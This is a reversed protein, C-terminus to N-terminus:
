MPITGVAVVGIAITGTIIMTLAAIPAVTGTAVPILALMATIVTTTVSIAMVVAPPGILTVTLIAIVTTAAVRVPGDGVGRLVGVSITPRALGLHGLAQFPGHEGLIIAQAQTSQALLVCLVDAQVDQGGIGQFLSIGLTSQGM